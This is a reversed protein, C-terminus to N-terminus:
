GCLKERRKEFHKTRCRRRKSFKNQKNQISDEQKLQPTGESPDSKEAKTFNSAVPVQFEVTPSRGTEWSRLWAFKEGKEEDSDGWWTDQSWSGSSACSGFSALTTSSETSGGWRHDTDPEEQSYEWEWYSTSYHASHLEPGEDETLAWGSDQTQSFSEYDVLGRNHKSDKKGGSKETQDWDGPTSTLLQNANASTTHPVSTLSLRSFTSCLTEKAQNQEGAFSPKPVTINTFVPSNPPNQTESIVTMATTVSAQDNDQVKKTDKGTKRTSQGLGASQDAKSAGWLQVASCVLCFDPSLEADSPFSKLSLVRQCGFCPKKVPIKKGSPAQGDFPLIELPLFPNSRYSNGKYPQSDIWVSIYSQSWTPLDTSIYSRAQFHELLLSILYLDNGAYFKLTKPLPRMLWLNHDVVGKSPAPVQNKKLCKDLGPLFHVAEFDSKACVRHFSMRKLERKTHTTFRKHLDAVQLDLVNRIMIGYQFWLACFDMRGDYVVKQITESALLSFLLHLSCRSQELVLIDFLYSRPPSTDSFNRICILSIVGGQVGLYLGECDVILTSCSSLFAVAKQLASETDVIEDNLSCLSDLDSEPKGNQVMQLAVLRERDETRRIQRRMRSGRGM